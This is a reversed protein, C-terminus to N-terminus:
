FGKAICKHDFVTETCPFFRGLIKVFYSKINKRRNWDEICNSLM